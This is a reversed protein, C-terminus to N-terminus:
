KDKFLEEWSCGTLKKTLFLVRVLNMKNPKKQYNYITKRTVNSKKSIESITVRYKKLVGKFDIYGTEKNKSM